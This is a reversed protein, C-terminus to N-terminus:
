IDGGCAVRTWTYGTVGGGVPACNFTVTAVLTVGFSGTVFCGNAIGSLHLDNGVLYLTGFVGLVGDLVGALPVADESRKPLKVKHFAYTHGTTSEVYCLDLAAAPSASVLLALLLFFPALKM